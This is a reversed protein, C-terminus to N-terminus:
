PFSVPTRAWPRRLCEAMSKLGILTAAPHMIVNSPVAELYSRFRGKDEFRARFDSRQLYAVIRPAIGGAIYVGGRAGFTLAINGAVSGLLACFTDLTARAVPCTEDMAAKTIEAANGWVPEIGDLAAIAQYLNELGNGSIVREVSVHGFQGRLHDIIADERRSTATLTAHGGESAIVVHGGSCQVLCAVGFGTGPGLVAMPADPMARGHGLECLDKAGLHPLSFATAQFDNVVHVDSFRFMTTLEARDIIWACNTLDCRGDEVPGAVALRAGTISSLCSHRSLFASVVDTFRAFDAVKFWQIPSLIGDTLLAFRANTAGIDGVLVTTLTGANISEAGDQSQMM